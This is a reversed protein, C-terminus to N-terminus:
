RPLDFGLFTAADSSSEGIAHAIAGPRFEGLPRPPDSATLVHVMHDGWFLLPQHLRRLLWVAFPRKVDCAFIWPEQRTTAGDRYHATLALIQGDRRLGEDLM